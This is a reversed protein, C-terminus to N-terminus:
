RVSACVVYQGIVKRLQEMEEASYLNAANATFSPDSVRVNQSCPQLVYNSVMPIKLIKNGAEQRRDRTSVEQLLRGINELIERNIFPRVCTTRFEYAPAKDMICRISDIITSATSTNSHGTQVLSYMDPRTKIDMAVFDILAEELLRSLIEPRSGNSDLKLKFGM